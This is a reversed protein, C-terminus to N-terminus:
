EDDSDEEEEERQKAQLTRIADKLSSRIDDIAKAKAETDLEMLVYRDYSAIDYIRYLNAPAESFSASIEVRNDSKVVLQYDFQEEKRKILSNRRWGTGREKIAWDYLNDDDLKVAEQLEELDGYGYDTDTFRCQAATEYRVATIPEKKFEVGDTNEHEKETTASTGKLHEDHEKELMALREFVYKEALSAM